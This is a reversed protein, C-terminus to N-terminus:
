APTIEARKFAILKEQCNELSDLPEWTDEEENFGAWRIRYIYDRDNGCNGGPLLSRQIIAEVEYEISSEPNATCVHGKKPRHCKTCQYVKKKIRPEDVSSNFEQQVDLGRKLQVDINKKSPLMQRLISDTCKQMEQWLPALDKKNKLEETTPTNSNTPMRRSAAAFYADFQYNYFPTSLLPCLKEPCNAEDVVGVESLKPTQALDQLQNILKEESAHDATLDTNKASFDYIGMTNNLIETLHDSYSLYGDMKARYINPIQFLFIEPSLFSPLSRSASQLSPLRIIDSNTVNM